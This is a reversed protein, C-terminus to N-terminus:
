QLTVGSAAGVRWFAPFDMVLMHVQPGEQTNNKRRTEVRKTAKESATKKKEEDV